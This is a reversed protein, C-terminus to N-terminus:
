LVTPATDDVTVVAALEGAAANLKPGGDMGTPDGRPIHKAATFEEGLIIGTDDCSSQSDDRLRIDLQSPHSYATAQGGDIVVTFAHAGDTNASKPPPSFSSSLGGGPNWDTQCDM